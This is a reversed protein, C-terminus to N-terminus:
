GATANGTTAPTIVASAVSTGSVTASSASVGALKTAAQQLVSTALRTDAAEYGAVIVAIKGTAFAGDVIKIVATNEAIGSAAGYSPYTLGMAEATLRNVAPGGVLVLNKAKEAAGVETDLKAIANTVPVAQKVAGGTTTTGTGTGGFFVDNALIKSPVKVTIRDNSGTSQTATLLIGADGVVEQSLRGANNLGAETTINIEKDEASSATDGLRLLDSALNSTDAVFTTKNNFVFYMAGSTGSAQTTTSGLNTSAITGNVLSLGANGSATGNVTLNLWFTTDGVGNYNLKFPFTIAQNTGGSRNVLAFGLETTPWPNQSAGSAAALSQGNALSGLSNIPNVTLSDNVQVNGKSNKYGVIVPLYGGNTSSANSVTQNFLLYMSSYWNPTALSGSGVSKGDSLIELGYLTSGVLSNDTSNYGTIPGVPKITVTAFNNTNFGVYKLEGYNNPLSVKEGAVLYSTDTPRYEANISAATAITGAAGSNASYTIYWNTAGPFREKSNSGTDATTDYEVEAQGTPGVVIDAELHQTAPDTGTVRIDTVKVDIGTVTSTKTDGEKANTITDVVAGTDDKVQLTSWDNNAGATIYITYKGSTVGTSALGDKTVTGVTGALLKISGTGVGVITFEKGLFTIKLSKAYQPATITGVNPISTDFVYRVIVNGNTGVVMKATGNIKDTALDHRMKVGTGQSLDVEEHASITTSNFTFTGQWLGSFHSNKLATITPLANSGTGLNGTSPNATLGLTIGDKEIGVGGSSTSATTAVSTYSLSALNAAVDIAGVVDSPAADAGVVVFADLQGDTGLVGPLASLSTAALAGGALTAGAMLATLGTAVFKKIQM